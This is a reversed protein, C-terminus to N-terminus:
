VSEAVVLGPQYDLKHPMDAMAVIPKLGFAELGDIPQAFYGKAAIMERRHGSAHWEYFPEVMAVYGRSVRRMEALVDERVFDMVELAQVTYVLDFSADAFPLATADAQRVDLRTLARRDVLPEPAFELVSEPLQEAAMVATTAAVGAETLEIGTFRIDPFRASLVFLNVGNGAGVELVAMPRLAAFTRMLLLQHVRKIGTARALMGERRWECPGVAGTTGLWAGLDVKWTEAYADLTRQETWKLKGAEPDELLKRRARRRRDNVIEVWEPDEGLFRRRVFPAMTAAIEDDTVALGLEDFALEPEPEALEVTAPADTLGERRRWFRRKM